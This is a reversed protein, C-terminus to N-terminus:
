RTRLYEILDNLEDKTLDNTRGHKDEPNFVTWIQELTQASGDHLYPGTIAINILQPTDLLGTNDSARKTGVDFSKQNTGKAGSHCYGCRNGEAIPNHFKDTTRNFLARGREQAASFEGNAPRSRNPRPPLSRVYVVLDTLTLDDYNEARWFFKETRPGCETPLNPNGGNWKYPETDKVAEIPRNDVIDRGFGDPELDWQLGDFTSDIHCNACGIQGQFSYRATYFTQEGNRLVSNERPGALPVTSTVRNTRTDIVSMTDDLRNAVLLKTGGRALLAGRPDHGVKVRAVVYNASASLDTAHSGPHAHVYRLMRPVDIVTVEESGGCTVFLRSKDPTIAVGFPRVSYRELEDLPLEVPQGVDSGFVTISDAFAGGHELHALPPLNKPHLGAAAGLNGDASFTVHFGHAIYPLAIREAVVARRVDIVTIESEPATRLPTLNPYVHTVYLKSADPSATIYSAGRGAALRKEEMGTRADLVAVDNSIRNAVYIYRGTRDAVVSSPEASVPWTASVSLNKTDIVSITDDWSNAVYLLEGNASLSLGRPSRGVQIRKREAYTTADLVRVEGTGQCLVYLQRGSLSFLMEVPSAYELVEGTQARSTAASVVTGSDKWVAIAWSCVLVVATVAAARASGSRLLSM